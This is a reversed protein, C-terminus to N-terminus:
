GPQWRIWAFFWEVLWRREYRCLRREDLTRPKKLNQRHQPIMNIDEQRLEDGLKDIGYERGSILNGPKAEIVYFDFGLQVLKVDYHIAVHTSTALPLGPNDVFVMNKVGKGRRAPGIDNGGGKALAFSADIFCGSEDLAGEYRPTNALYTLAERLVDKSYCNQFRRHVTKSNPLV